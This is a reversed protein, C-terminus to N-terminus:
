VREIGKIKGCVAVDGMCYKKIYLNEGKIVIVGKKLTLIIENPQYSKITLVKEFYGATDGFIVARYSPECPLEEPTFCKLIENIFGM